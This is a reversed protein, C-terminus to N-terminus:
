ARLKFNVHMGSGDGPSSWGACTPIFRSSRHFGGTKAAVHLIVGGPGPIHLAHGVPAPVIETGKRAGAGVHINAVAWRPCDGSNLDSTVNM